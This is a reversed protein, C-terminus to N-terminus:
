NESSGRARDFVTERLDMLVSQFERDELIRRVIALPV